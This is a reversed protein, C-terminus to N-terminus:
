VSESLVEWLSMLHMSSNRRPLHRLPGITTIKTNNMARSEHNSHHNRERHYPGQLDMDTAKKSILSSPLAATSHDEYNNSHLVRSAYTSRRPTLEFSAIYKPRHKCSSSFSAFPSLNALQCPWLGEVALENQRSRALQGHIRM